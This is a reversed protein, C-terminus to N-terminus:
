QTKLCLYCCLTIWGSLSNDNSNSGSKLFLFVAGINVFLPDNQACNIAQSKKNQRAEKGLGNEGYVQIEHFENLQLLIPYSPTLRHPTNLNPRRIANPITADYWRVM